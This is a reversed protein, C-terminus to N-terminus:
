RKFTLVRKVAPAATGDDIWFELPNLGAIDAPEIGLEEAFQKRLRMSKQQGIWKVPCQDYYTKPIEQPKQSTGHFRLGYKRGENMLRKAMPPAAGSRESYCNIEEAIVHTLHRGDLAALVVRCFQEFNDPTPEADWALRFGRGTQEAVLLGQGVVQAFKAVPGRVRSAQHDQHPDFLLVRAGAAPIDPNQKVAQSKGGGSCALYLTNRNPLQPNPNRM